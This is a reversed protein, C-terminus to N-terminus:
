LVERERERKQTHLTSLSHTKALGTFSSSSLFFRTTSIILSLTSGLWHCGLWEKIPRANKCRVGGWRCELGKKLQLLPLESNFFVNRLCTSTLEPCHRLCTRNVAVPIRNFATFHSQITPLLFIKTLFQIKIKAVKGIKTEWSESSM